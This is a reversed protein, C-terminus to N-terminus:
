RGTLGSTRPGSSFISKLFGARWLRTKSWEPVFCVLSAPLCEMTRAESELAKLFHCEPPMLQRASHGSLGEGFKALVFASLGSKICSTISAILQRVHQEPEAGSSLFLVGLHVSSQLRSLRNRYALEAMSVIDPEICLGSVFLQSTKYGAKLFEDAAERTPALVVSAGQAQAQRPVVLEGHQYVLNPRGSLIEVLLPHAVVLSENGTNLRRLDRGLFKLAWAHRRYSDNDRLRSYLRGIYGGSGGLYYLWRVLEWARRSLGQSVEFVDHIELPPPSPQKRMQNVIGDLYFPHGRGINM